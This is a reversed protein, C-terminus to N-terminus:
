HDNRVEKSLEVIQKLQDEFALNTTDIEIADAAKRLPSIERTSDVEDRNKFNDIIEEISAEIGSDILQKQRRLARTEMDATLFLKLEANPFVVTGIDRGDMVVGGEQGLRQQEAVLKNRVSEIASVSSVNKNVEMTRLFPELDLEGEFLHTEGDVKGFRLQITDLSQAVELDNSWDVGDRLFIYTVGRYMAGTDVYIYGFEEALAKATSSKGCGSYGDIAITIDAMLLRKRSM